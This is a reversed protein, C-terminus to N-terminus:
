NVQIKPPAGTGFLGNAPPAVSGVPAPDRKGRGADDDDEDDIEIVQLTKPNIKAEIRRGERTQAKVEYCGDDVKVKRLTWGNEAALRSVAEKPQWEDLPVKCDDDALAMGAPIAAPSALATLTKKM